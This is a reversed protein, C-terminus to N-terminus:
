VVAFKSSHREHEERDNEQRHDDNAAKNERIQKQNTLRNLILAAYFGITQIDKNMTAYGLLKVMCPRTNPFGRTVALSIPPSNRGLPGVASLITRFNFHTPIALSKHGFFVSACRAVM